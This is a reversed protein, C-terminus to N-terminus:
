KKVRMLYKVNSKKLSIFNKNTDFSIIQYGSIFESLRAKIAQDGKVFVAIKEAGWVDISFLSYGDIFKIVKHSNKKIKKPKIQKVKPVETKPAIKQNSAPILSINKLAYKQSSLENNLSNYKLILKSLQGETERQKNSLKKIEDRLLNHKLTQKDKYDQFLDHLNKYYEETNNKNNSIKQELTELGTDINLKIDGISTRVIEDSGKKLQYYQFAVFVSICVVFVLLVSLFVEHTRKTKKHELKEPDDNLSTEDSNKSDANLVEESNKELSPDVEVKASEFLVDSISDKNENTM